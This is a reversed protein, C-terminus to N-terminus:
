PALVWNNTLFLCFFLERPECIKHLVYKVYKGEAAVNKARLLCILLLHDHPFKPFLSILCVLFYNFHISTNYLHQHSNQKFLLFSFYKHNSWSHNFSFSPSFSAFLMVVFYFLPAESVSLMPFTSFYLFLLHFSYLSYTVFKLSSSYSLLQPFLFRLINYLSQPLLHLLIDFFPIEFLTLFFKFPSFITLFNHSLISHSM